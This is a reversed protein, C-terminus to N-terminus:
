VVTCANDCVATGVTRKGELENGSLSFLGQSKFWANDLARHLSQTCSLRWVGKGSSGLQRAEREPIGRSKLFRFLSKFNKKQTLKYCRLKRRIWGDLQTFVSYTEILKFYNYWGKLFVNLESVVQEFSRGRSRKTLVRVKDRARKVSEPALSLRGDTLLRYGLFKRESVQAVTSKAENVKLKLKVELFRKISAYVREGARQSSVYINQDDAYRCFKHGRRELEKDVEDLLVNSLLPSLPGGQPTGEHRDLVVGDEMIGSQLFRRIIKLLRKDKIRRALRSMLIDHNVRDFFKELDMDVVWTRGSEVYSKAQKLAMHASRKPRFGYSSDSFMPEYIPELVQYIAQQVLRDVVTPIGLQREGGGPKPIMVQLVPQPTYSGDLLCSILQEKHERVYSGLENVRMRDIGASGKNSKVRKYARNLNASQCVQEMLNETLVELEPIALQTSQVEIIGTGTRGKGTIDHHINRQKAKM